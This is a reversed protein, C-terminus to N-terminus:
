NAQTQQRNARIETASHPDLRIPLFTWAPPQLEALRRAARPQIRRHRFSQAALESLAGSAYTPRDLVAIPLRNFIAQWRRWHRIQRLNDAGMLWVFRTRPYLRTIAAVTDATYRTGLRGELDLVKIRRDQALLRARHFREALPAMGGAPKLPNQPAV